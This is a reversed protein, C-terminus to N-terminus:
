IASRNPKYIIATEVLRLFHTEQRQGIHTFRQVQWKKKRRDQRRQRKTEAAGSLNRPRNYLNKTSFVVEYSHPSKGAFRRRWSSPSGLDTAMVKGGLRFSRLRVPFLPSERDHCCIYPQFEARRSPPFGITEDSNQSLIFCATFLPIAHLHPSDPLSFLFAPVALGHLLHADSPVSM